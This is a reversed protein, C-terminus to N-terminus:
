YRLCEDIETQCQDGTYGATCVCVYDGVLNYCTGSNQCPSSFIIYCYGTHLSASASADDSFQFMKISSTMLTVQYNTHYNANIM